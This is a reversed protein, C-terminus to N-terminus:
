VEAPEMLWHVCGDHHFGVSELLTCSRDEERKPMLIFITRKKAKQKLAAIVKLMYEQTQFEGAMAWDVLRYWGCEIRVEMYGIVEKAEEILLIQNQSVKKDFTEKAYRLKKRKIRITERTMFREIGKADLGEPPKKMTFNRTKEKMVDKTPCYEWSYPISYGIHVYRHYAAYDNKTAKRLRM